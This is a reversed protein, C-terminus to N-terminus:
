MTNRLVWNILIEKTKEILWNMYKEDTKKGYSMASIFHWCEHYETYAFSNELGFQKSYTYAKEYKQGKKPRAIETYGLGNLISALRKSAASSTTTRHATHLIKEGNRLGYMERIAVVENKGNRRSVSYGFKSHTWLGDENQALIDYTLLEQWEHATRGCQNYTEIAENGKTVFYPLVVSQTPTQRGKRQEAM